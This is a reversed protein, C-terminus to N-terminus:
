KWPTSSGPGNPRDLTDAIHILSRIDQHKTDKCTYTYNAMAESVLIPEESDELSWDFSKKLDRMKRCCMAEVTRLHRSQVPNNAMEEEVTDRLRQFSREWNFPKPRRYGEKVVFIRFGPGRLLITCAIGIRVRFPEFQVRVLHVWQDHTMYGDPASPGGKWTKGLKHEAAQARSLANGTHATAGLVRHVLFWGLIQYGQGQNQGTGQGLFRKKTM